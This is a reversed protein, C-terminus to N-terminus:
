SSELSPAPCLGNRVSIILFANQRSELETAGALMPPYDISPPVHAAGVERLALSIKDERMKEFWQDVDQTV